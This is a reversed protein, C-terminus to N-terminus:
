MLEVPWSRPATVTLPSRPWISAPLAVVVVDPSFDSETRDSPRSPRSVCAAPPLRCLSMMPASPESFTVPSTFSATTLTVLKASPVIPAIMM